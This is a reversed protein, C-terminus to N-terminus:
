SWYDGVVHVYEGVVHVYEGLWGANAKILAQVGRVGDCQRREKAGIQINLGVKDPLLEYVTCALAVLSIVFKHRCHNFKATSAALM